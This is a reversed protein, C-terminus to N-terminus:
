NMLNNFHLFLNNLFRDNLNNLSNDMFLNFDLLRFYQILVTNFFYLSYNVMKNFLRLNNSNNLISDNWDLSNDFSNFSYWCDNLFNDLFKNLNRFDNFNLFNNFSDNNHRSYNLLYNFNGLYDFFYNLFDYHDRLNNFYLFNNVNWYEM